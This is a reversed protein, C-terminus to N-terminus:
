SDSDELKTHLQQNLALKAFDYMFELLLEAEEFTLTVGHEALSKVAINPTIKRKNKPIGYMLMDYFCTDLFAPKPKGM